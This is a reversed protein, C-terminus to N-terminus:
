ICGKLVRKDTQRGNVIWFQHRITALTLGTGGHLTLRHSNRIILETFQHDPPLIM